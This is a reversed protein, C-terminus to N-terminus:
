AFLHMMSWNEVDLGLLHAGEMMHAADRVCFETDSMAAFYCPMYDSRQGTRVYSLAKDKAWAFSEDLLPSSSRLSLNSTPQAM